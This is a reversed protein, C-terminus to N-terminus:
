WQEVDEFDLVKKKFFNDGKGHVDNHCYICLSILNDTDYAKTADDQLEIIHHVNKAKAYKGKKKCEQCENNDRELVKPRVHDRWYRSQYFRIIKGQEYLKIIEQETLKHVM